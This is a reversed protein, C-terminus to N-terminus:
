KDIEGLVPDLSALVAILDGVLAGNVIEPLIQTGRYSPSHMHLRKPKSTGNSEIYWGLEGKPNETSFFVSGEPVKIGEYILMFHYILSEMETYVKEKSPLFIDPRDVGHPGPPINDICQSVIKTSERMEDLRVQFRAYADGEPRTCVMWDLQDYVLYPRDKRLDFPIGSARLNPGTLGYQVALEKSIVGVNKTRDMWIRNKGLLAEWEDILRPFGKVFKKVSNVFDPTIDRALGGIRQNTVTFRAGSFKEFINYLGERQDFTWFFLTYAGVDLSYTGFSLLHASIRSLEYLITRVWQCKPPTEIDLLQEVALCYSVNNASPALYDFRDTYPIFQHYDKVEATKEKGRHLYGVEPECSVVNEGDLEVILRLVGHTSPHQPGFNVVIHEPKKPPDALRVKPLSVKPKYPIRPHTRFKEKKIQRQIMLIADIIADPRPPCAPVYVDVPIVKDLGRVVSYANYMGGTCLCAGQAIVWKPELMQDYIQRVIPAMKYTLTGAVIMLDSQRPSFRMAEAGFRAVDYRPAAIAMMEIACCSIGMPMPWLSNKRGWNVLAELQTTFIDLGGTEKEPSPNERTLILPAGPEEILSSKITGTKHAM